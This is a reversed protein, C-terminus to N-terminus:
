HTVSTRLRTAREQKAPLSNRWLRGRRSRGYGVGGANGHAGCGLGRGLLPGCNRQDPTIMMELRLAYLQRSLASAATTPSSAKARPKPAAASAGRRGGGM